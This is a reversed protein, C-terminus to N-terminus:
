QYPKIYLFKLVVYQIDSREAMMGKEEECERIREQRYYNKPQKRQIVRGHKKIDVYSLSQENM